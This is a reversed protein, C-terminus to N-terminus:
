WGGPSWRSTSAVTTPWSRASQLPLRRLQLPLALLAPWGQLFPHHHDHDHYYLLLLLLLLLMMVCAKWLAALKNSSSAPLAGRGVPNRTDWTAIAWVESGRRLTLIEFGQASSGQLLLFGNGDGAASHPSRRLGTSPRSPFARAQPSHRVLTCMKFMFVYMCVSMCVYM